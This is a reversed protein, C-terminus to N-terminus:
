RGNTLYYYDKYIKITSKQSNVTAQSQALATELKKNKERLQILSNSVTLLQAEKDALAETLKSVRSHHEDLDSQLQSITIKQTEFEALKNKWHAIAFVAGVMSAIVLIGLVLRNTLKEPELVLIM